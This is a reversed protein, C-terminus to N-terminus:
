RANPLTRDRHGSLADLTLQHCNQSGINDAIRVQHFPFLRPCERPGSRQAGLDGVRLDPLKVSMDELIGTVTGEGLAVGIQGRVQPDDQADADAEAIHDDFTVKKPLPTLTTARM